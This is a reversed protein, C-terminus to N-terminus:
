KGRSLRRTDEAIRMLANSCATSTGTMNIFGHVMDRECRLTLENGANELAAAYAAGEDRLPDFGATIVVSPPLGTLDTALLPSLKPDRRTATDNGFYQQDFFAIDQATLLFGEAFLKQSPYPQSRDVAPYILIAFDPTREGRTLQCVVASLNGGASDGGVGIRSPDAGLEAAHKVALRFADVGDEVAAPFTAEPALRYDFALVHVDAHKCLFRCPGDHTDLDGLVFGGGHFFVLLPQPAAGPSTVPAYHRARQGGEFTVDSVGGVEIVAGQYLVSERRNRRRAEVPGHKAVGDGAVIKRMFLALQLDPHLTNGDLQVPKGGSLRVKTAPTRRFMFRAFASEVRDATSAAHVPPAAPERKM